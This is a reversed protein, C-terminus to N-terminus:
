KLMENVIYRRKGSSLIPIEDISKIQINAKEGVISHLIDLLEAEDYSSGACVRMESDNKTKQVFQFQSIGEFKWMGNTVMHPSIQNGECDFVIDVARGAFKGIATRKQNKYMVEVWAGADGTDYRVMPMAYNHLDTVVVRGVEGISAPEDSDFKLIEVIYSARNDLFVNNEVEDQGLIGNEENSYRSFCKCGFAHEMSERTVDYLMESGSIIGFIKCDKVADFGHKDFYRRFADLTSAYSLIMAGSGSSLKKIQFLLEEIGKDSLDKSNLQYINSLFQQLPSKAVKKVLSRIYIIRQGIKYGTKGSYYIVEANVKKKKNVDQLCSFPTGTSGSTSMSILEEEKYLSSLHSEKNERLENKNIVPWDSLNTSTM